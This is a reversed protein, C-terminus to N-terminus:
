AGDIPGNYRSMASQIGELVAIEVADAAYAIMREAVPQQPSEFPATVYEALDPSNVESGVGLRIRPFGRGIQDCIDRLGNHTGPGGSRRLRLTGLPLDVDDVAVLMQDPELDLHDLLWVVADGSRNMFTLPKALLLREGLGTSAIDCLRRHVWVAGSQRRALEEVVRFGVNHRTAAYREGPNGLGVVLEIPRETPPAGSTWGLDGADLEGPDHVPGDAM